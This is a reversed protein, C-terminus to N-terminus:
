KKAAPMLEHEMPWCELLANVPFRVNLMHTVYDVLVHRAIRERILNNM